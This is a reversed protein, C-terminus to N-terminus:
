DSVAQNLWGRRPWHHRTETPARKGPWLRGVHYRRARGLLFAPRPFPSGRKAPMKGCLFVRSRRSDPSRAPYITAQDGIKGWRLEVPKGCIVSLAGTSELPACWSRRQQGTPLANPRRPPQITCRDPNAPGAGNCTPAHIRAITRRGAIPDKLDMRGDVGPTACASLM